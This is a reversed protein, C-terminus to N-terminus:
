GRPRGLNERRAGEDEAGCAPCGGASRARSADVASARRAHSRVLPVLVAVLAAISVLAAAPRLLIAFVEAAGMGVGLGCASLAAAICLPCKPVLVAGVAAGASTM